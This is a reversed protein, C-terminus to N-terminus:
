EVSKDRRIKANHIGDNTVILALVVGYAYVSSNVGDECAVYLLTM